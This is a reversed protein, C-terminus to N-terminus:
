SYYKQQRPHAQTEKVHVVLAPDTMDAIFIRQM